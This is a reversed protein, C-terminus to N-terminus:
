AKGRKLIIGIHLLLGAPIILTTIYPFVRGKNKVVSLITPQMPAAQEFSSHYFTYGKYRLPKNMEIREPWEVGNDLIMVDSSYSRAKDTDPYVDRKFDVLRVSFPLM